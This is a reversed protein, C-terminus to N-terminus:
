DSRRTWFGPEGGRLGEACADFCATLVDRHQRLKTAFRCCAWNTPAGGIVERLAPHERILAATM